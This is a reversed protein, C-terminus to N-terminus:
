VLASPLFERATREAAVADAPTAALIQARAQWQLGRSIDGARRKLCRQADGGCRRAKRCGRLPCQQWFKFANCYHRRLAAKEAGFRAAYDESIQKDAAHKNM